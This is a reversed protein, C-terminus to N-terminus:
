INKRIKLIRKILYDEIKHNDEDPTLYIATICVIPFSIFGIIIGLFLKM